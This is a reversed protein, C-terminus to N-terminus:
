NKIITEYWEEVFPSDIVKIQENKAVNGYVPANWQAVGGHHSCTGRGTSCSPSRTGDNCLTCYGVVQKEYTTKTEYHSIEEKASHYIYTKYVIGELECESVINVGDCTQIKQNTQLQKNVVKVPQEEKLNKGNEVMKTDSIANGIISILFAVIFIFIMKNFFNKHWFEKIKNM